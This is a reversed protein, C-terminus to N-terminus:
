WRRTSPSSADRCACRVQPAVYAPIHLPRANECVRRVANRDVHLTVRSPEIVSLAAVRRPGTGQGATRLEASLWALAARASQQADVRATGVAWAQQGQELTVLTAGLTLSLVATSVLLDALTVRSAHGEGSSADVDL